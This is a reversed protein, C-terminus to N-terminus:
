DHPTAPSNYGRTLFNNGTLNKATEKYMDIKNFM